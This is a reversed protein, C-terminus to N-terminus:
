EWTIKILGTLCEPCSVKDTYDGSDVQWREVSHGHGCESCQLWGTRGLDFAGCDCRHWDQHWPCTSPHENM